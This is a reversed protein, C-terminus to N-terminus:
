FCVPQLLSSYISALTFPLYKYDPYVFSLSINHISLVTSVEIMLFFDTTKSADLPQPNFEQWNWSTAAKDCSLYFHIIIYNLSLCPKWELSKWNQWCCFGVSTFHFRIILRNGIILRLLWSFYIIDYLHIYLNLMFYWFLYIIETQPRM